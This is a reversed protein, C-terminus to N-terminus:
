KLDYVESFSELSPTLITMKEGDPSFYLEKYVGGDPDYVCAAGIGSMPFLTPAGGCISNSRWQDIKIESEFVAAEKIYRVVKDGDENVMWLYLDDDEEVTCGKAEKSFGFMASVEDFPCSNDEGWEWLQYTFESFTFHSNSNYNGKIMDPELNIWQYTGGVKNFVVLREEDYDIMGGITSFALGDFLGDEEDIRGTRKIENNEFWAYETGETSIFLMIDDNLNTAAGIGEGDFINFLAKFDEPLKNDIPDPIDVNPDDKTCSFLISLFLTLLFVNKM